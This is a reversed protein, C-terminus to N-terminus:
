VNEAFRYESRHFGLWCVLLLILSFAATAAFPGAPPYQNYLITSRYAEIIPTMPNLHLLTGLRGSVLGIPYVVSTAFMWVTLVVEFLYKVDRYFLNAMALLLGVAGTFVIQVVLIVPVFAIARGVGLGYFAMLGALVVSAVILDVLSVILASFPFVERPFYVKTVLTANSSLSVVSAKLASATFNWTLLGCYAFVPYPVDTKVRAIRTFIITFIVTNLVPMFIAWAFGMVAQKYRLLLDRQALRWTLERFDVQEGFM